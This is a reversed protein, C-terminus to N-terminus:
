FLSEDFWVTNRCHRIGLKPKVKDIVTKGLLNIKISQCDRM